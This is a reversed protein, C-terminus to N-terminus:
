QAFYQDLLPVIQKKRSVRDWLDATGDVVSLDFVESILSTEHAPVLAVAQQELIDIVCFLIYNLWQEERIDDLAQLIEGKHDLAYSPTTTEMVGIWTKHGSFEFQKYDLL